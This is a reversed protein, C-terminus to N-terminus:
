TENVDKRKEQVIIAKHHGSQLYRRGLEVSRKMLKTKDQM